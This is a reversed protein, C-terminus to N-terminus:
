PMQYNAALLILAYQMRKSGSWKRLLPFHHAIRCDSPFEEAKAEPPHIRTPDNCFAEFPIALNNRLTGNTLLSTQGSYMQQIRLQALKLFSPVQHPLSPIGQSHWQYRKSRLFM